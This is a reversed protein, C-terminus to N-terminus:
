EEGSFNCSVSLRWSTELSKGLGDVMTKALGNSKKSLQAVLAKQLAPKQKDIWERVAAGAVKRVASRALYEVLTSTDRDYTDPKGGSANVKQNLVSSIVRSMLESEGGLAEVMAAHIKAEIIPRVVDQSVKIEVDASM